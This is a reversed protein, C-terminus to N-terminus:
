PHWSLVGPFYVAEARENRGLAQPDQRVIVQAVFDHALKRLNRRRLNQGFGRLAVRRRGDPQRGM